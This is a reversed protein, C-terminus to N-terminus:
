ASDRTLSLRIHPNHSGLDTPVVIKGDLVRCLRGYAELQTGTPQYDTKGLTMTSAM